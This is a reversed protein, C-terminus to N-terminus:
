LAETQRFLENGIDDRGRRWPVVIAGDRAVLVTHCHYIVNQAGIADQEATSMGWLFIRLYLQNHSSGGTASGREHTALYSLTHQVRDANEGHARIIGPGVLPAEM